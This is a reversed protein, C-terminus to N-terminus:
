IAKNLLKEAVIQKEDASRPFRFGNRVIKKGDCIHRENRHVATGIYYEGNSKVLGIMVKNVSMWVEENAGM